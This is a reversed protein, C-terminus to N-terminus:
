HWLGLVKGRTNIAHQSVQFYDSLESLSVENNEDPNNICINIFESKPMLLEAAFDNGIKDTYKEWLVKAFEKAAAFNIVKMDLNKDYLLYPNQYIAIEEIRSPKSSIGCRKILNLVNIPISLNFLKRIYDCYEEMNKFQKKM